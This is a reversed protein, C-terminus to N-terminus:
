PEGFRERTPDTNCHVDINHGLLFAGYLTEDNNGYGSPIKLGFNSTTVLCVSSSSHAM